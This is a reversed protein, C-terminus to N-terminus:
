KKIIFWPGEHGAGPEVGSPRPCLTPVKKYHSRATGSRTYEVVTLLGPRAAGLM